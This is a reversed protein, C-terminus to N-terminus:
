PPGASIASSRSSFARRLRSAWFVWGRSTFVGSARGPTSGFRHHHSLAAARGRAHRGPPRRHARGRVDGHAPEGRHLSFCRLHADPIRLCLILFTSTMLREIVNGSMLLWTAGQRMWAFSALYSSPADTRRGSPLSRLTYLSLTLGFLGTIWLANRWGLHDTLFAVGPIGVLLGMAVGATAFGIALGRARGTFSDGIAAVATPPVLAGSVGAIFRLVAVALYGDVFSTAISSLSLGVVGVLIVHKRGYRDSFPALLPAGVGWPIFTIAALQGMATLSLGLDRGMVELMPGLIFATTYATFITFFM